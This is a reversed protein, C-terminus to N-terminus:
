LVALHRKVPAADKLPGIVAIAARSGRFVDAAARRVDAKTVAFMEAIREEPTQVRRQLLEQRAYWDALRSSDELNLVMKGKFYEQARSLEESTVEKGKMRGLEAMIVKMADDFRDKALGAQVTVNGVDQYPNATAHISYALGRKERVSMFLRSSMTGGLIISMIKLAPLRPDGYRYAPWGMALQVQETEKTEIRVAAGRTSSPRSFPKYPAPASRRRVKGFSRELMAVAAEREFRGALALVTKSPVYHRDRYAVLADRGIGNMTAVTGGIRWGLSSGRYLEEEMREEVVMMPNDDYMRLEEYIVKREADVDKPRFVSHYLMDELIDVALGLKEAQLRVYYGTMDKYTFANYDAGVADLDRSIAMTTPRRSTGKFMMHEIFHSAGNMAKTEYRSGVEYLALLTAAATDRHPVLLVRTGNSLTILEHTIM